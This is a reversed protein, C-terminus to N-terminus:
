LGLSAITEELIKDDDAYPIATKPLAFRRYVQALLSYADREYDGTADFEDDWDDVVALHTEAFMWNDREPVLPPELGSRMQRGLSRLRWGERKQRSMLERSVLRCFEFTYEVLVVRNVRVAPRGEVELRRYREQAWGLFESTAATACLLLGDPELWVVRDKDATVLSGEEIRVEIGYGLGFGNDRVHYRALRDLVGRLGESDYFDDIEGVGLPPLAALGYVAFETWDMYKIVRSVLERYREAQDVEPQVPTRPLTLNRRAIRGDSIDRHIQGVPAWETHAGTRRAVAFSPVTKGAETFERTVLAPRQDDDAEDIKIALILKDDGRQYVRPDVRESLPPYTLQSIVDRHRKRDIRQAPVPVVQKAVEEDLNVPKETRVAITIVGGDANAMAAVDKALEWRGQDSDLDYPQSKFECWTSEETGSIDDDRGEELAALLEEPSHVPM